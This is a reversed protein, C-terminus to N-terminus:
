TTKCVMNIEVRLHSQKEPSQGHQCSQGIGSAAYLILNYVFKLLSSMNYIFVTCFYFHTVTTYLFCLCKFDKTTLMHLIFVFTYQIFYLM